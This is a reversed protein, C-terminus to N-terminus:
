STMLTRQHTNILNVIMKKKSGSTKIQERLLSVLPAFSTALTRHGHGPRRQKAMCIKVVGVKCGERFGFEPGAIAHVKEMTDAHPFANGVDGSVVKMKNKAAIELLIRVSVSQVM